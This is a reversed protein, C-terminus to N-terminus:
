LLHSVETWFKEAGNWGMENAHSDWSQATARCALMQSFIGEKVCWSIFMAAAEPDHPLRVGRWLAPSLGEKKHKWLRNQEVVNPILGHRVLFDINDYEQRGVPDTFLLVVGAKHSPCLLAKFAQESPKTIEFSVIENKFLREYLAVVQSDERDSQASVQKRESMKKLFMRTFPAKKSIIHFLYAPNSVSLYRILQDLYQLGVAAGSIPVSVHITQASGALQNVRNTLSREYIDTSFDKSLPYPVTVIRTGKTAIRLLADRTRNSPAVILDAGPVAWLLQPSDDTVVVVVSVHVGYVREIEERVSTIQYALGFHTCVFIVNTLSKEVFLKGFDAVLQDASRVLFRKYLSSALEERAGTQTWEMFWRTLPHISMFRHVVGTAADKSAFYTLSLGQPAGSELAHAVRIHGLGAAATCMVVMTQNSVLVEEKTM